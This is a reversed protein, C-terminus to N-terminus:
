PLEFRYFKTAPVCDRGPTKDKGTSRPQWLQKRNQEFLADVRRPLLDEEETWRRAVPSKSRWEHRCTNIKGGAQVGQRVQNVATEFNCDVTMTPRNIGISGIAIDRRFQKAFDSFEQGSSERRHRLCRQNFRTHALVLVCRVSVEQDIAM